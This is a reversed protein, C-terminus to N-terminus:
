PTSSADKEPKGGERKRPAKSGETIPKSTMGKREIIEIKAGDRLRDVGQTVVKDGPKLGETIVIRDGDVAGTEVYRLAVTSEAGVVYAYAGHSGRQIATAPAIAADKQVDVLLRAIVFQNPFLLGEENPMEAKLKLTGSGLDIQNDTTLLKGLGLSTNMVKDFAEVPVPDSGALRKTVAAVLEQPVSFILGMPKMQTVVVLGNADSTKIMNGPDVQRLGVRGTIPSSIKTYSVQLEANAIASRDSVLAAEYQRVLSAQTDVQQKAISDQRLLAEYRAFDARANELLAEDKALQAKAQDLQVQFPRPDIEALLDGPKGDHPGKVMQGEAFHVKQLEGDVRSRVTVVNLPTVTGAISVWEDFNERKVTEVSVPVAGSM